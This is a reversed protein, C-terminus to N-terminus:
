RVEGGVEDRGTFWSRRLYAGRGESGMEEERWWEEREENGMDRLSISSRKLSREM